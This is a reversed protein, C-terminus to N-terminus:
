FRSVILFGCGIAVLDEVLAVGLDPLNARTVL